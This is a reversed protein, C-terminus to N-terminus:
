SRQDEPIRGKTIMVVVFILAFLAISVLVPDQRCWRIGLEAASIALLLIYVAFSASVVLGYNGTEEVYEAAEEKSVKSVSQDTSETYVIDTYLVAAVVATLIAMGLFIGSPYGRALFTTCPALSDREVYIYGYVIVPLFVVEPRSKGLWDSFKGIM